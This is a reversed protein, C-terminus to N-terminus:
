PEIFLPSNVYMRVKFVTLYVPIVTGIASFNDCFCLDSLSAIMVLSSEVRIRLVFTFTYEFDRNSLLIFIDVIANDIRLRADVSETM